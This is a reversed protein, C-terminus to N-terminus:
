RLREAHTYVNYSHPRLFGALLIGAREALDVALSSPAGMAVVAPIGAAMAKQLLEFSARGSLLLIAQTAPLADRLFLSGVLKDTANHRGVDEYSALLTGRADFLSAAHLGGTQEFVQQAQRARDALTPLLAADVRFDSAVAQSPVSAAVAEISAKGCVGCSSSTYFNRELRSLDLTNERPLEVRIVNGSTGCPRITVVDERRRLLGEGYLFGAALQEDHGPTRMTISVARGTGAEGERAIRIELPEEVAICDDRDQRESGRVSHVTCSQVSRNTM